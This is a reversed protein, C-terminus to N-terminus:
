ARRRPRRSNWQWSRSAPLRRGFCGVDDHRGGRRRLVGSEEVHEHRRELLGIRLVLGLDDGHAATLRDLEALGLVGVHEQNVRRGGLLLEEGGTEGGLAVVDHVVVEHDDTRRRIRSADLARGAGGFRHPLIASAPLAPLAVNTERPSAEPVWALSFVSQAPALMVVGVGAAFGQYMEVPWPM